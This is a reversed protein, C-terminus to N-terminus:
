FEATLRGPGDWALEVFVLLLRRAAALRGINHALMKLMVEDVVAGSKRTLARRYGMHEEVMAFVPEITAMRRTYRERAGPQVLRERMEDRARELDLQATFARPGKGPTCQPKLSCSDCGRGVWQTRGGLRPWPGLMKKGAPCTVSGDEHMVFRDRGFYKSHPEGKDAVLVDVAARHASAYSLTPEDWYGADAAIQLQQDNSVGALALVRRTEEIAAPLKGADNTAADVLVGIVFRHKTSSAAVTLRHGPVGAGDPFKMLAADPNTTVISTRGREACERLADTHKHVRAEHVQREADSLQTTDVQGLEELRQESRRVSRVAGTSANARLRMADIAIDRCDVLGREVGLRVTQELARAFFAGHQLRFRRITPAAIAHGGSLWRMAMDTRTARALQTSSHLKTLSGYILVALLRRPEYGHRGLSSYTSEIEALDLAALERWVRRALHDRPVALEPCGMVIDCQDVVSRKFHPKSDRRQRRRKPRETPSTLEGDTIM